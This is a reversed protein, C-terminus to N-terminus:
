EEELLMIQRLVEGMIADALEKSDVEADFVKEFIPESEEVDGDFLHFGFRGERNFLAVCRTREMIEGPILIEVKM